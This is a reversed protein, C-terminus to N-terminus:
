LIWFIRPHLDDSRRDRGTRGSLGIRDDAQEFYTYLYGGLPKPTNREDWAEFLPAEIAGKEKLEALSSTEGYEVQHLTVAVQFKKLNSMAQTENRRKEYNSVGSCATLLGAVLLATLVRGLMKM